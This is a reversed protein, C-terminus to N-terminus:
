DLAIRAIVPRHDSHLGDVVCQDLFGAPSSRTLYIYDIRRDSYPHSAARGAVGLSEWGSVLVESLSGHLFDPHQTQQDALFDWNFDGLVVTYRSDSTSVMARLKRLHTRARETNLNDFPEGPESQWREIRHNVHTNLVTVLDAHPGTRQLVVKLVWRAPFSRNEGDTRDSDAHMRAMLSSVLTFESALWSVALEHPSGNARLPQVTDWGREALGLAAPPNANVEQWGILALDELATLAQVDQRAKDVGLGVFANFTAVGLTGRRGSASARQVGSGHKLVSTELPDATM